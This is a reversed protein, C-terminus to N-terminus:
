SNCMSLQVFIHVLYTAESSHEESILKAWAFFFYYHQGTELNLVKLMIKWTSSIINFYEKDKDHPDEPLDWVLVLVQSM